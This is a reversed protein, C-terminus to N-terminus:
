DMFQKARSLVSFGSQVLRYTATELEVLEKQDVRGDALSQNVKGSLDGVRQVLETINDLMAMDTAAGAVRSLDLWIAGGHAACAADLIRPDRTVSLIEAIDEDNLRHTGQTPNLKNQLTSSNRGHVAAVAKVGGKYDHVAQYCAQGLTLSSDM